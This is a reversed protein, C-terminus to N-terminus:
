YILRMFIGLVTVDMPSLAKQPHSLKDDTYMGFETVEMPMYAKPPQRPIFMTVIGLEIVEIASPVKLPQPIVDRLIGLEIVVIPM